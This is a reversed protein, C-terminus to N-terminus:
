SRPEEDAELYLRRAAMLDHLLEEELATLHLKKRGCTVEIGSGRARVGVIRTVPRDDGDVKKQRRGWPKRFPAQGPPVITEYGPRRSRYWITVSM